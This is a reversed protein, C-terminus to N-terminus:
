IIKEQRLLVGLLRYIKTFVIIGTPLNAEVLTKMKLKNGSDIKGEEFESKPLRFYMCWCNGCAGKEGFLQEFSGWNSSNLPEIRFSDFEAM